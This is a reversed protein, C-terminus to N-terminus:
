KRTTLSSAPPSVAWDTSWSKSVSRPVSVIVSTSTTPAPAVQATTPQVVFRAASEWTSYPGVAAYPEDVGTWGARM